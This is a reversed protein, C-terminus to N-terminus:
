SKNIVHITAVQKTGDTNHHQNVTHLLEDLGTLVYSPTLDNLCRLHGLPCTREFCPSCELGLTLIKVHQALPPTFSPDSSGYIVVLPRKLAAAVHMLGSDNTVVADALSLLDVAETLTTKGGLDYCHAGIKDAIENTITVDNPGGFLWIDWGKEVYARGVTAMYDAPWQKAPGYEAGPCLALVPRNSKNVLHQQSNINAQSPITLQPFPLPDPLDDQKDLGLAIFREVMFPLATKDLRRLDNLLGYRMEGCWGTRIPIKAWLPILASKFSNPLVIAQQYKEQRLSRALQYRKLLALQGHGIPMPIFRRVEPMHTVIPGSAKPALVDIIVGPYRKSLLQYVSHSMIMDGVWSPGIILIKNIM